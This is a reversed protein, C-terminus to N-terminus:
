NGLLGLAVSLADEDGWLWTALTAGWSALLTPDPLTSADAGVYDAYLGMEPWGATGALWGRLREVFQGSDMLVALKYCLCQVHIPLTVEGKPYVGDGNEGGAAVDPCECEIPPHDPSLRIQEREVWPAHAFIRDTALHHAVQIENRALRLANYAV